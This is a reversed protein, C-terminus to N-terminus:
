QHHNTGRPQEVWLERYPRNYICGAPGLASASCIVTSTTISNNSGLFLFCFIGLLDSDEFWDKLYSSFYNLVFSM